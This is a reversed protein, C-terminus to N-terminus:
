PALQYYHVRRGPNPEILNKGKCSVIVRQGEQVSWGGGFLGTFPPFLHDGDFAACDWAIDSLDPGNVRGVLAYRGQDVFRGADNFGDYRTKPFIVIAGSNRLLFPGKDSSSLDIRGWFDSTIELGPSKLDADSKWPGLEEPDTSYPDWDDREAATCGTHARGGANCVALHHYGAVKALVEDIQKGKEALPKLREKLAADESYPSLAYAMIPLLGPSEAYAKLFQRSWSQKDAAPVVDLKLLRGLRAWDADRAAARAKTADDAAKRAAIFADWEAARKLAIDKFKPADSALKRWTKTKEAPAADTKDFKVVANYKELADVDVTSWDIGSSSADLSRPAQLAPLDAATVRFLGGPSSQGERDIKALDPAIEQGRVLVTAANGASLEPTQTRDHALGLAKRAYDVVAGATVTGHSDAAWGRLAGLALYSFAPRMAASRPLAGAFQDSKAATMLVLRGGGGFPADRMVILPQLGAVLAEGSPSRGSFCADILVVTKSQAGKALSKLLEARSLSRAYLDDADQQADAGILLGDKGDKSPAGHGIFVFWLTGGPSVEAAAKAAYKRLKELTAENDRLLTVKEAPVRLTGTLYAQWDQANRRAGPVKAVFAYNEVGVVVAADKEGGGTEVAPVSLDPWSDDAHLPAPILILLALLAPFLIKPDM